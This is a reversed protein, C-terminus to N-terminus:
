NPKDSTWLDMLPDVKAKPPAANSSPDANALMKETDQQGKIRGQTASSQAATAFTKYLKYTSVNSGRVQGTNPDLVLNSQMIEAVEAALDKDFDESEPNFIPFDKLVRESESELTLQAEAVSDNYDRLELRRELAEVKADSPSMGEEILEQETPAQYVESNVKAVEDRLTNRTAVLDRIETNLQAKREDAKSPKEESNTEDSVVETDETTDETEEKAAEPEAEAEEKPEEPEKTEVPSSEAKATDQEDSNFDDLTIEGDQVDDQESM